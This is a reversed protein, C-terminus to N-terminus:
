LLKLLLTKCNSNTMEPFISIATSHFWKTFENAPEDARDFAYYSRLGKEEKEKEKYDLYHKILQRSIQYQWLPLPARGRTEDREAHTVANLLVETAYPMNELFDVIGEKGQSELANYFFCLTQQHNLHEVMAELTKKLKEIEKPAPPKYDSFEIYYDRTKLLKERFEDTIEPPKKNM